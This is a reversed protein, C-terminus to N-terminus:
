WQKNNSTKLLRDNNYTRIHCLFLLCFIRNITWYCQKSWQTPAKATSKIWMRETWSISNRRQQQEEQLPQYLSIITKSNTDNTNHKQWQHNNAVHISKKALLVLQARYQHHQQIMVVMWPQNLFAWEINTVLWYEIVVGLPMRDKVIACYQTQYYEMEDTVDCVSSFCHM